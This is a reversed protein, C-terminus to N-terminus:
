ITENQKMKVSKKTAQVKIQIVFRIMNDDSALKEHTIGDIVHTHNNGSGFVDLRREIMNM